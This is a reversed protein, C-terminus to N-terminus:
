TQVVCVCVIGALLFFCCVHSLCVAFWSHLVCVITINSIGQLLIAFVCTSCLVFVIFCSVFFLLLLMIVYMNSLENSLGGSRSVFAVSGPRYLKCAVINDLMGGTNGIRFCGPKLGGVTSPGLITVGKKKAVAILHRTYREPVGEAIITIHKIQEFQLMELTAPYASRSSAFNVITDVDKNKEQSLCDELTQYVPVMIESNGWYFQRHHIGSAFTYVIAAVSPMSRQSIYDFDLMNQVARAQMGYVIARTNPTMTYVKGSEKADSSEKEDSTGGGWKKNWKYQTLDINDVFSEYNVDALAAREQKTKSVPEVDIVVESSRRSTSRSTGGRANKKAATDASTTVSTDEKENTKADTGGAELLSSRKPGQYKGNTPAAGIDSMEDDYLLAMSVIATIHTEPGFVKMHLGNKRGCEKMLKLGTQYNPGGRRVYIRTDHEILQMKFETLADIIGKFTDAVDTFNAIGGGILLVKPKDSRYRTLLKIITSAYEYTLSQTPAGSYEGYNGLEESFGIDCITDAYIVSAGGGAVMTWVRAKPNLVTLKLSAGTREDLDAILQEEASSHHGFYPPFSVIDAWESHCQFEATQDLKAALDIIYIASLDNKCVIPNIELYAFHLEAYLRYLIHIFESLFLQKSEALGSLLADSVEKATPRKTPPVSLM